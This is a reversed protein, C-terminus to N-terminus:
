FYRAGAMTIVTIALFLAILKTSTYVRSRIRMLEGREAETPVGGRAAAIGAITQM